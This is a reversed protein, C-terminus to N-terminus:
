VNCTVIFPRVLEGGCTYEIEHNRWSVLQECMSLVFAARWLQGINGLVDACNSRFEMAHKWVPDDETDPDVLRNDMTCFIRSGGGCDGGGGDRLGGEEGSIDDAAHFVRAGSLLVTLASVDVGISVLRTFGDAAAMIREVAEAERIPRRLGDVLLELVVSRNAKRKRTAKRAGGDEAEHDRDDNRDARRDAAASAGDRLPKLFAAYWLLRRADEDDTLVLTEDEGVGNVAGAELARTADCWHPPNASNDCLRDHTERLLALGERYHADGPPSTSSSPSPADESPHPFVTEALGLGVLLGVAGVPDRGRLMLDVESGIRERSVKRRLAVRVKDDAAARRLPDSMAFRLRAAFRVARLVRLPDDLLTTLPPLPTSIIGGRLDNLGRGTMDEVIGDNINYFLSNITLDRRHADERPTGIRTSEPIRSDSAYYEEARLNVFDIWYRGLRMSATELHKSKEPNGVVVGVSSPCVVDDRANLWHKLRDAFEMGLRDDIAIDIDVPVTGSLAHSSSPSSSRRSPDSAVDEGGTTADPLDFEGGWGSELIKDRVWGGAVRLTSKMGTEVVATRLLDFLEEEEKSLVIRVQYSRM